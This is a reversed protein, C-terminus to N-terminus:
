SHKQLLEVLLDADTEFVPDYGKVGHNMRRVGNPATIIMGDVDASGKIWKLSDILANKDILRDGPFVVVKTPINRLLKLTDSINNPIQRVMKIFKSSSDKEGIQMDRISRAVKIIRDPTRMFKRFLTNLDHVSFPAAEIIVGRICDIIGTGNAAELIGPLLIGGVSYAHLIISEPNHSAVADAILKAIMDANYDEPYQPIIANVHARDNLNDTIGSFRTIEDDLYGPLYVYLVTTPFKSEYYSYNLEYGGESSVHESVTYKEALIDGKLEEGHIENM